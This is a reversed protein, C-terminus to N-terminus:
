QTLLVDGKGSFIEKVKVRYFFESESYIENLKKWQLDGGNESLPSPGNKPYTLGPEKTRKM